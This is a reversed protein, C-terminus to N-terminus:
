LKRHPLLCIPMCVSTYMHLPICFIYNGHLKLANERFETWIGVRDRGLDRDRDPIGFRLGPGSGSGSGPRSPGSGSGSGLFLQDRGFALNINLFNYSTASAANKSM